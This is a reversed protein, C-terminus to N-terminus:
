GVGGPAAALLLDQPSPMPPLVAEPRRPTTFPRGRLDTTRWGPTRIATPLRRPQPAALATLVIVLAAIEEDTPNGREIHWSSSM